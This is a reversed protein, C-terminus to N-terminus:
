IQRKLIEVVKKSLFPIIDKMNFNNDLITQMEEKLIDDRIWNIIDACHKMQISQSYLKSEPNIKYLSDIAQNFRNETCTNDIFTKINDIKETDVPILVKEKTIKHEEGKTKFIWRNDSNYWYRWVIGEGTGEVGLKKAFPCCKEVSETLETLKKQTDTDQYEDINIEISYTEFDYINYIKEPENAIVCKNNDKFSIDVWYSKDKNDTNDTNDINIPSIKCDFICFCKPLKM